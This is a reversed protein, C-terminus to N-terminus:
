AWVSKVSMTTYGNPYYKQLKYSEADLGSARVEEQWEKYLEYGLETLEDEVSPYSIEDIFGDDPKVWSRAVYTKSKKKKYLRLSKPTSILSEASLVFECTLATKVKKNSKTIVECECFLSSRGRVSKFKLWAKGHEKFSKILEIAELAPLAADKIAITLEDLIKYFERSKIPVYVWKNKANEFKKNIQHRLNIDKYATILIIFWNLVFHVSITMSGARLLLGMVRM